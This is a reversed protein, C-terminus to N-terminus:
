CYKKKVTAALSAKPPTTGCRLGGETPVTWSVVKGYRGTKIWKTGRDCRYQTYYGTAKKTGAYLVYTGNKSLTYSISEAKTNTKKKEAKLELGLNAELSAIGVKGSVKTGATATVSATVESVKQASFTKTATGGTYNEVVKRHTVLWPKSTSSWTLKNSGPNCMPDNGAPAAVAPGAFALSVAAGSLVLAVVKRM